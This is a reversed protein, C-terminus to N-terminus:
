KHLIKMCVATGCLRVFHDYEEKEAETMRHWLKSGLIIIRNAELDSVAITVNM